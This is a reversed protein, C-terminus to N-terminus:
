IINDNAARPVYFSGNEFSDSILDPMRLIGRKRSKPLVCVTVSIAAKALAAFLVIFFMVTAM